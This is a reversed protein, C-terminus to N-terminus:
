TLETYTIGEQFRYEEALLNSTQNTKYFNTAEDSWDVIYDINGYWKRSNGGKIYFIWKNGKGIEKNCVEWHYRLYKENNATINQSGTYKSITDISIGTQFNDIFRESVWYAVPMGPIKKFNEQQAIYRYKCGLDNQAELVKEDQVAMGGKFDSLRLYNGAYNMKSNRLVFTCIPVTAEEFASYEMQILTTISKRQIIYERLKEYSKIFMWVFPTM